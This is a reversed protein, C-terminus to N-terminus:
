TRPALIEDLRAPLAPDRKLHPYRLGEHYDIAVVGFRDGTRVILEIPATSGRAAKIADKLLEASYARGNVALVQTGETLGAKFAPSDWQVTAIVGDRDRLALGLSYTFTALKRQADLANLYEGPVDTYVLQYGGRRLGDLPAPGDVADLHRRLLSAWDYPEVANLAEVVDEFRYTLPEIRGDEVGFFARAFDDLSHRGGSRERLLTDVDLWILQGQEYYDEFGQWSRWSMPRRPNIIEDNTTDQLARWRRNPQADYSAATRALDELAQQRTWMGSRATLVKGWYQTQGEYVWLLSNQMPVEYSPVWLDKPRRFKGNWSHVLEHALLDRGAPTKDWDTFYGADQGNESSQHHERGLQEVSDGLSLLFDYHAYHHSAFLKYAQKILARHAALAAPPVTLSEPRDAFLDLQVPVRAGPDLDLRAAHRGAYVPSDLLTELSVPKFTVPARADSEVELASAFTWGTPLALSAVVPIQRAFYGAPYLVVSTWEVISLDHSMEPTGVKPSTPSLYDFDVELAPAGAPVAVHFAYVDLPDRQWAVPAGNVSLKLGAVRDIPGDPGHRGPLWKPYRLVTDANLATITEHVHVIRRDVDTEDVAIRMQGPFPRDEPAAALGAAVAPPALPSEAAGAGAAAVGLIAIAAMATRM